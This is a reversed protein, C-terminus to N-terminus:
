RHHATMTNVFREVLTFGDHVIIAPIQPLKSITERFAGGRHEGKALNVRKFQFEQNTLKLLWVVARTPQSMMDGLVM